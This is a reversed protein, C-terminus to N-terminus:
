KASDIEVMAPLERIRLERGSEWRIPQGNLFAPDSPAARPWGFVLGGPPLKLGVEITLEVRRGDRRV